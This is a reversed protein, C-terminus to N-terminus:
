FKYTFLLSPVINYEYDNIIPTSFSLMIKEEYKPKKLKFSFYELAVTAVILSSGIIIRNRKSNNYKELSNEYADKYMYYGDKHLKIDEEIVSNNYKEQASIAMDYNKNIDGELNNWTTTTNIIFIGLIIPPVFRMSNKTVHYFFTKNKYKKYDDSYSLVELLKTTKGSEINFTREVYEHQSKWMKITYIGTDLTYEVNTNLTSDNLKIIADKPFVNLYLSGSDQSYSNLAFILILILSIPKM